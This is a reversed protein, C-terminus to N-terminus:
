RLFLEIVVLKKIDGYFLKSSSKKICITVFMVSSKWVNLVLMRDDKMSEIMMGRTCDDESKFVNLLTWEKTHVNAVSILLVCM